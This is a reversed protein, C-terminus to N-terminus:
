KLHEGSYPKFDIDDFNSIIIRINPTDPHEEVFANYGKNQVYESVAADMIDTIHKVDTSPVMSRLITMQVKKGNEGTLITEFIDINSMVPPLVKIENYQRPFYGCNMVFRRVLKDDKYQSRSINDKMETTVPSLVRAITAVEALQDQPTVAALWNMIVEGLDFSPESLVKKWYKTYEKKDNEKWELFFARRIPYSYKFIEQQGERLVRNKLIDFLGTEDDIPKISNSLYVGTFLCMCFNLPAKEFIYSLVKVEAEIDVIRYRGPTNLVMYRPIISAYITADVSSPNNVTSYGFGKALGSFSLVKILKSAVDTSSMDHILGLAFCASRDVEYTSFSKLKEDIWEVAKQEDKKLIEAFRIVDERPITEAPIGAIFYQNFYKKNNICKSTNDTHYHHTQSFLHDRLITEVYAKFNNPYHALVKNVAENFVKEEAQKREAGTPHLIGEKLFGARQYYVEIWGKEDLYKLSEVLCLDVLETEIGITPVIFSLQNAFRDIARKTHLVPLLTEAVIDIEKEKVELNSDKWVNGVEIRTVDELFADQIAPLVIPVNIIKELYARGREQQNEGYLRGLQRSVVDPDLGMVYIVNKFDVVQKIMKFMIQVEATDLRDVDDIFVVFHQNDTELRNSIEKKLQEIDNVEFPLCKALSAQYSSIIPNPQQGESQLYIDRYAPIIRDFQSDPYAASALTCFFESVLRNEGSFSWPNFWLCKISNQKLVSEVMRMTTTKGEGWAGYVGFTLTGHSTQVKAKIANAILKVLKDRGLEDQAPAIIIKDEYLSM